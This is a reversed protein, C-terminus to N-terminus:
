QFLIPVIKLVAKYTSPNFINYKENCNHTTSIFKKFYKKIILQKAPNTRYIKATWISFCICQFLHLMHAKQFAFNKTSYLFLWFVLQPFNILSYSASVFQELSPLFGICQQLIKKISKECMLNNNRFIVSDMWNEDSFITKM